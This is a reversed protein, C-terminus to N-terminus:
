RICCYFVESFALM